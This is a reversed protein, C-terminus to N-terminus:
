RCDQKANWLVVLVAFMVMMLSINGPNPAVVLEGLLSSGESKTHGRYRNVTQDDESQPYLDPHNGPDLEEGYEEDALPVPQPFEYYFDFEGGFEDLVDRPDAELSALLAGDYTPSWSVLGEEAMTTDLRLPAVEQQSASAIPMAVALMLTAISWLVAHKSFEVAQWKAM